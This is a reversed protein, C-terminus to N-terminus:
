QAHPSLENVEHRSVLETLVEVALDFTSPDQFTCNDITIM